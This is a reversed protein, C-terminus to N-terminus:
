LQEMLFVTTAIDLENGLYIYLAFIIKPSLGMVIRIPQSYFSYM